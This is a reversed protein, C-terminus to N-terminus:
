KGLILELIVKGEVGLDESHDEKGAPKGVLNNYAKTMKEMREVDGDMEVEVM